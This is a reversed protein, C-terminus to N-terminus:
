QYKRLARTNEAADKGATWANLARAYFVERGPLRPKARRTVILFSITVSLPIKEPAASKLAADCIDFEQEQLCDDMFNYVADVAGHEDRGGLRYVAELFLAVDVMHFQGAKAINVPRRPRTESDIRSALRGLSAPVQESPRAIM